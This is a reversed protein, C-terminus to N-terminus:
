LDTTEPDLEALDFRGCVRQGAYALTQRERALVRGAVFM